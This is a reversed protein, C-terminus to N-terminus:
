YSAADYTPEDEGYQPYSRAGFSQQQPPRPPPARTGPVMFSDYHGGFQQNGQPAYQQQPMSPMQDVSMYSPQMMPM